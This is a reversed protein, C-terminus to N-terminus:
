TLTLGRLYVPTGSDAVNAGLVTVVAHSCASVHCEGGHVAAGM